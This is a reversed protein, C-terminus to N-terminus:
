VRDAPPPEGVEAPGDTERPADVPIGGPEGLRPADRQVREVVEYREADRGREGRARVRAPSPVVDGDREDALPVTRGLTALTRAPRYGREGAPDRVEEIHGREEGRLQARIWRLPARQELAEVRLRRRQGRARRGARAIMMEDM